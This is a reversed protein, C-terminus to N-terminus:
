RREEDTLTYFESVVGPYLIGDAGHGLCFEVQSRLGALDLAGDSGFTTVPIPVVGRLTGGEAGDARLDTMGVSREDVVDSVTGVDLGGDGRAGHPHDPRPHRAQAVGVMARAANGRRSGRGAASTSSTTGRSPGACPSCGSAWCASRASTHRCRPRRSRASVRRGHVYMAVAPGSLGTSTALIGGLIGSPAVWHRRVAMTGAGALGYAAYGLLVLGMLGTVWMPDFHEFLLIGVPLGVVSFGTLAGFTRQRVQGRLGPALLLVASTVPVLCLAIVVVEHPQFVLLLLPVSLVSFGFGTVGTLIGALFVIVVPLVFTM